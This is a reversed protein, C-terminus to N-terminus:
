RYLDYRAIIHSCKRNEILSRSQSKHVHRDCGVRTVLSQSRTDAGPRIVDYWDSMLSGRMCECGGISGSSGLPVDPSSTRSGGRGPVWPVGRSSNGGVAARYLAERDQETIAEM